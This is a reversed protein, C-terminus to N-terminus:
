INHVIKQLDKRENERAHDVDWTKRVFLFGEGFYKCCKTVRRARGVSDVGRSRNVIICLKGTGFVSFSIITRIM